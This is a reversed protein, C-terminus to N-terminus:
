DPMRLSTLRSKMNEHTQWLYECLQLWILGVWIRGPALRRTADEFTARSQLPRAQKKLLCVVIYWIDHNFEACPATRSRLACTQIIRWSRTPLVHLLVSTQLPPFHPQSVWQVLYLRSNITITYKNLVFTPRGLLWIYEQDRRGEDRRHSWIIRQLSVEIKDV